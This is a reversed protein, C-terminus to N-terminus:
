AAGKVSAPAAARAGAHPRVRDRRRAGAVVGRAHEGLRGATWWRQEGRARRDLVRTIAATGARGDLIRVKYDRPPHGRDAPVPELAKRLAADLASVPGNGEAATHVVASASALKVTADAFAPARRPSSGVTVRYDLLEFPPAYRRRPAAADARGLGRGSRVRLRAGRAGQHRRPRRGRRRGRAALGHEEAKALLTAAGSLESVVVRTANGVRAPDVHEYAGRRPADGGRPHRGQARLRQPRRVAHTTPPAPQRGRRRLAVARDARRARGRAPLAPRAQAGPRPHRHVPQRQRLARRLRQDHGARPARRGARRRALQRRRVGHRRPRPHRPARGRRAGRARRRRRTSRWPLRAATPTASCSRRPAAAPPPACRRSRTIRTRRSATSSTSPTTSSAGGQARPLRRHGRDDAPEGRAHHAAGRERAADLEQRLHTCVPTGAALLARSSRTTRPARHGRAAHRRVGRRARAAVASGRASSSSPTRPTRARGGSSSSLSASGTSCSPSACSTPSRCAIGERQTGDRLTTDYLEVADAM